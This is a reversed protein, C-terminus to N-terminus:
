HSNQKLLVSTLETSLFAILESFNSLSSRLQKVHSVSLGARGGESLNYNTITMM